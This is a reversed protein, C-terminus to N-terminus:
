FKFNLGVTYINADSGSVGAIKSYTTYAARVAMNPAIEAEYGLGYLTGSGSVSTSAAGSGAGTILSVTTDGSLSHGGLKFFLGNLGSAKSPRFVAAYDVGSVKIQANGSYAVGNRAVGSFTANATGSMVYGIEVGLNETLAYGGYFRGISIGTDQTSTATGGVSGVLVSAISTQDKFKVWAYEVGGYAKQETSTQAISPAAILFAAMGLGVQLFQKNMM